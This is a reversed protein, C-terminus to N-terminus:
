PSTSGCLASPRISAALRVTRCLLPPPATTAPPASGSMPREALNAGNPTSSETESCVTSSWMRQDEAMPLPPLLPRFAAEAEFTAKAESIASRVTEDTM